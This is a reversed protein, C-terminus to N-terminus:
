VESEDSGDEQGGEKVVEKSGEFAELREEIVGPLAPLGLKEELAKRVRTADSIQRQAMDWIKAIKEADGAPFRGVEIGRHKVKDKDLRRDFEDIMPKQGYSVFDHEGDEPLEVVVSRGEPRGERHAVERSVVERYLGDYFDDQLDTAKVAVEVKVAELGKEEAEGM